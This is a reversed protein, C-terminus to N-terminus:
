VQMFDKKLNKVIKWLIIEGIKNACVYEHTDKYGRSRICGYVGFPSFAEDIAFDRSLEATEVLDSKDNNHIVVYKGLLSLGILPAGFEAGIGTASLM